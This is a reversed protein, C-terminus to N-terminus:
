FRDDYEKIKLDIDLKKSTEEFTRKMAKVDYESNHIIIMRVSHKSDYIPDSYMTFNSEKNRAIECKSGLKLSPNNIQRGAFETM